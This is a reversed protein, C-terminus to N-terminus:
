YENLAPNPLNLATGELTFATLCDPCYRLPRDTTELRPLKSLRAQHNGCARSIHAREGGGIRAAYTELEKFTMM